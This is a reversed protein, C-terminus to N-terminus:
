DIKYEQTFYLRWDKAIQAMEMKLKQKRQIFEASTEDNRMAIEKYDLIEVSHICSIFKTNITTNGIDVLMIIEELYKGLYLEMQMEKLNELFLKRVM